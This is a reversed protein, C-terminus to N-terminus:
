ARLIADDLCEKRNTAGIVVVAEHNNQQFGDWATLFEAILTNKHGNNFSNDSRSGLLVEIEDIFLIIPQIRAALRFTAQIIKESEGYFKDRVLSPKVM